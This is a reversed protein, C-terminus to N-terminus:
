LEQCTLLDSICKVRQKNKEMEGEGREKIGDTEEQLIRQGAVGDRPAHAPCKPTGCMLSPRASSHRAGAGRM